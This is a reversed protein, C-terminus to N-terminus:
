RIMAVSRVFHHGAVELRVFYLGSGIRGAGPGGWVVDHRGASMEEDVLNAVRRGQVDLVTLRVPASVPLTFSIRSAGRTPNPAPTMLMFEKPLAEAIGTWFSCIHVPTASNRPAPSGVSFDASNDHTQDCGDDGRLAATLNDPAPAPNTQSCNATGYGVFDAIGSSPCSGTLTVSSTVLAVKGSSASLNITGIADPAPLDLTGGAGQAEEVLYYRGPDITGILTTSSWSSGSASAYQISWGTVNVSANGRNFLEVYDNKYDAAGNGGGGYVQSIVVEGSSGNLVFNATISKDADMTVNLPNVSSTADGSWHDFHYGSVPVATLQVTAGSAYSPQNPTRTVSGSAAPNVATTLTFLCDNAPTASNRPNPSGTSFDASNNDTDVCGGAHRLDATTNSLGPAPSTESCDASGYGVFDEIMAGTPCDASLATGNDVLAVKGSSANMAIGGTADPTPLATTGGAGAAERVLYYQGPPIVGSIATTQWTSGTASAYQVTWGTVDIPDSGRNYLEIFDNTYTAGTNGGGGYVQSVVVMNKGFTATISKDADMTVSLPNTNGSADGSWAVFHWGTAPTATLQVTSGFDYTPQDPSKGVSGSGVTSVSLTHQDLAFTATINKDGDVTVDLPNTNGSADGSWGTFHSGTAPTATLQVTSGYDYTPQDPSKGVTGNGVTTVSVTHQDVAFTATISKNSDMTVNLPNTNGSADGSWGVFHWGTAPTATLQVVTGYDYTPQDPSKGVTGSGVTNVALSHQHIMFTATINKDADMTVNLPNTNGSADGSWSVFNWGTAPTATLQVTSGYDYTPQDPAKGVSGSGVTGVTLTHQDPAFTATVNKDGNMTVDLPNTNGSADGSWGTFHWGTAPTATLQVTSGYDYTPQDPSKGVSGSGVVTVSLTHQDPAFTATINKNADMTVDLPNTNGSADGSWGTFHWGTAPTATLQVTSGYDYTPQDPSKGVTGSGVTSVSLTQQDIAFTATINKDGDVSVNLPNTNGSADGSWGTFHWGTAPTATLQVTSGYDYTPQNPSKGVSGSGVTTVTVTHQDPAFNATISKNGTMTVSLPNTNGSADGSWGTFHYGTAPTATLQVVSGDTYSAQDPSKGVTGGALPSATVALTYQCSVTASATNRPTPAGSAFDAGNNDTDTCGNNARLAATTNSLTATTSGESCNTGTGYGVFDVISGGTPCTGTLTTTSSSLAVKGAGAAMNISGTADPTPLSTTGGAGAAEQVLYYGGAPISGSLATVSWSSGMTAAYQVSYGTLSITSSGRNHLEIFDNKYTAGANGGGGYVQSVVLDSAARAPAAIGTLGIVACLATIAVRFVNRGHSTPHM